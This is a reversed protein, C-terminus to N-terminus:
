QESEKRPAKPLPMWHTLGYKKIDSQVDELTNYFVMGIMGNYVALLEQEDGYPPLEEEVSIWNDFHFMLLAAEAGALYAKILADHMVDTLDNKGEEAADMILSFRERLLKVQERTM